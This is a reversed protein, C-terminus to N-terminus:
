AEGEILRDCDWCEVDQRLRPSRVQPVIVPHEAPAVAVRRVACTFCLPQHDHKYIIIM